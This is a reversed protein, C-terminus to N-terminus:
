HSIPEGYRIPPVGKTSRTSRRVTPESPASLFSNQDHQLSDEHQHPPADGSQRQMTPKSPTTRLLDDKGQQVPSTQPDEEDLIPFRSKIERSNLGQPCPSLDSLSVSSERGDRYRINAYQPNADLLPVEEVLDDNKHNRLFKRLMVPGPSSLWAPLSRGSRSRRNFNFFLEHPTTNTTTNLLSRISHLANPLVTKWCSLPLNNSKLSLRISKWVIGIYREAQSNGTPHYPSSKSSAIGRKLLFEKISGSSFSPANDSHVFQPTGCLSFLKELCSIVTSSYMNPCPFAFSFRSYEDIIVLLYKNRSSSPLPGKFDISIREFPKSAKILHSEERKYFSPKLEACIRCSSCVKRVDGTSFPLNKTRVFHLLRTVGPHCLSAHIEALSSISTSSCFGRTLSDAAANEKGPRYLINYSYSALELRWCQIKNNKIKTRKRNDSMFSVSRQDTVLTFHQRSLFHTWKRVAEIIATAEKEVAPYHLESGHLTRSMFAVPRGGQNLTASIAVDSADCEVVFPMNEDISQLAAGAIEKKLNQFDNIQSDNLPFSKAEKM